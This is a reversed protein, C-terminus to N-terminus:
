AKPTLVGKHRYGPSRVFLGTMTACFAGEQYAATAHFGPQELGPSCNQLTITARKVRFGLSWCAVTYGAERYAMAQDSIKQSAPKM